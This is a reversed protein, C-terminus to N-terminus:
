LISPKMKIATGVTTLIVGFQHEAVPPEVTVSAPAPSQLPVDTIIPPLAAASTIVATSPDDRVQVVGDPVSVWSTTTVVTSPWDKVM